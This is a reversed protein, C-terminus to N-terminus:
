DNKIEKFFSDLTEVSLETFNGKAIEEESQGLTAKLRELKIKQYEQTSLLVAAARGHKEILVPERQAKDMLQGFHNKADKAAITEM